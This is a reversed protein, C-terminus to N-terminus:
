SRLDLPLGLQNPDPQDVTTVIQQDPHRRETGASRRLAESDAATLPTGLLSRPYLRAVRVVNVEAALMTLQAQLYLFSLLGLVVAFSGYVPGANQVVHNVYAGGVTQLITFFLAALLAGPWLKMLTLRTSALIKFSALFLLLNILLTPALVVTRGILPWDGAGAAIGGATTSLGVSAAMIALMGLSRLLHPVFAPRELRPVDWISNMADQMANVAGLSGWLTAILGVVLGVGSGHATGVNAGIQDGIVPFNALASSVLDHQRDPHGDLVFGLVSTFVLLLPFISFFLYYSVLAARNGAEDDGFKKVVAYAFGIPSSRQQMEDLRQVMGTGSAAVREIAGPTGDAAPGSASSPEAPRGAVITAPGPHPGDDADPGVAVDAGATM